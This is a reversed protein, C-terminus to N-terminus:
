RDYDHRKLSVVKEKIILHTSVTTMFKFLDYNITGIVSSYEWWYQSMFEWFYLSGIIHDFYVCWTQFRWRILFHFSDGNIEASEATKKFEQVSSCVLLWTDNTYSYGTASRPSFFWDLSYFSCLHKLNWYSINLQM